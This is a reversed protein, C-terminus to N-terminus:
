SGAAGFFTKVKDHLEHLHKSAHDKQESDLLGYVFLLAQRGEARRASPPRANPGWDERNQWEQWIADRITPADPHTRALKSFRAVRREDAELRAAAEDPLNAVYKRLATDQGDTLSGAWDEVADVFQDQREQLREAHPRALEERAEELRKEIRKEVFDIQDDRLTAMIPAAEDIIAGAVTDILGDVQREMGLLKEETLGKAIAVDVTAVLMDIKTGLVVPAAAMLKDVSARTAATQAEDFNFEVAIQRTVWRAGLNQLLGTCGTALVLFLSM